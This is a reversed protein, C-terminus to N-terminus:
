AASGPRRCSRRWTPRWLRCISCRDWLPVSPRRIICIPAAQGLIVGDAGAADASRIITGVNGPDQVGDLVVVLSGPKDLAAEAGDREKRIVAFVPQPTNTSSCKAIVAASVAVTEMGPVSQLLGGLEAPMGKDIDYALIEVDAEALLAEQM